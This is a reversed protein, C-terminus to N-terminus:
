LGLSTGWGLLLGWHLTLFDLLYHQNIAVWQETSVLHSIIIISNM